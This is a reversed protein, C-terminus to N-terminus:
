SASHRANRGNWATSPYEERGVIIVPTTMVDRIQM